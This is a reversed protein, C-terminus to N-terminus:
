GDVPSPPRWSAPKPFLRGVGPPPRFRQWEGEAQALRDSVAIIVAPHYGLGSHSGRVEINEHWRTETDICTHWRCVGDTRSYIATSPVQLPAKDPEGATPWRASFRSVVRDAVLSAASRDDPVMRFPSGLTIVQRVADPRQRAMERALIGGASWGVLSVKRGHRGFLEELRTAIGDLVRDTPGWNAGM